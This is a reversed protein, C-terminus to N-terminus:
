SLPVLTVELKELEGLGIQVNPITLPQFGDKLITVDYLGFHLRQHASGTVDSFFDYQTTGSTAKVEANVIGRNGKDLIILKIGTHHTAIGTIKRNEFYQAYFTPATEKFNEMLKDMEFLLMADAENIFNTLQKHAVFRQGIAEKPTSIAGEYDTIATLCTSVNAPTIGYDALAAVNANAAEYIVTARALAASSKGSMIKSPSFNVSDFLVTNGTAIAYAQVAGKLRMAINKMALRKQKKNKAYGVIIKTAQEDADEVDVIKLKFKNFATAFAVLTSWILMNANVVLFVALFMSYKQAQKKTM